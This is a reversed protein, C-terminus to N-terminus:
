LSLSLCLSVSLSVSLSLSLSLSFPTAVPLCRANRAQIPSPATGRSRPSGGNYTSGGSTRKVRHVSHPRTHGAPSKTAPQPRASSFSIASIPAPARTAVPTSHPNISLLSQSTEETNDRGGQRETQRDRKRTPARTIYVVVREVSACVERLLLVEILRRENLEQFVEQIPVSNVCRLATGRLPRHAAWMQAM